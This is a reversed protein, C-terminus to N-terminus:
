NSKNPVVSAGLKACTSNYPYPDKLWRESTRYKKIQPINTIDDLFRKLSPITKFIPETLDNISELVEALVFDVYTLNDGVLYKKGELVKGLYQVMKMMMKYKEQGMDSDAGTYMVFIKNNILDSLVGMTMDVCAAEELNSGLLKPAYKSCIYRLIANSETLKFSSDIIYPLNPYEFGLTYKIDYWCAESFDPAPGAQYLEEKYPIGLYEMLM